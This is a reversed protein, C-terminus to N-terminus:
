NAFSTTAYQSLKFSCTHKANKLHAMVNNPNVVAEVKHGRGMRISLQITPAKPAKIYTWQADFKNALLVSDAIMYGGVLM